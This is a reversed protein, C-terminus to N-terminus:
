ASLSRLPPDRGVTENSQLLAAWREAWGAATGYIARAEPTPARAEEIKYYALTAVMESLTGVACTHFAVNDAHEAADRLLAGDLNPHDGEIDNLLFELGPHEIKM